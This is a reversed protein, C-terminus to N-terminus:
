LRHQPLQSVDIQDGSSESALCWKRGYSMAMPSDSFTATYSAFVSDNFWNLQTKREVVRYLVTSSVTLDLGFLPQNLSGLTAFLDFRSSPLTKALLNNQELSARLAGQFAPGEVESTWLPNTTEGGDIKAIVM